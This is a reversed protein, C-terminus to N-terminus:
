TLCLCTGHICTQKKWNGLSRNGQETSFYHLREGYRILVSAVRSEGFTCSRSVTRSFPHLSRWTCADECGWIFVQRFKSWHRGYTGLSALFCCDGSLLM